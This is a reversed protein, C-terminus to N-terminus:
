RGLAAWMGTCGSSLKWPEAASSFGTVRHPAARHSARQHVLAGGRFCAAQSHRCAIQTCSAAHASSGRSTLSASTDQFWEVSYLSGSNWVMPAPAPMPPKLFDIVGTLERPKLRDARRSWQQRIEMAHTMQMYFDILAPAPNCVILDMLVTMKVNYVNYLNDVCILRGM